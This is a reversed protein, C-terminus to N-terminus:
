NRAGFVRTLKLFVQNNRATGLSTETLFYKDEIALALSGYRYEIAGTADLQSLAPRDPLDTSSYRLALRAHVHNFPSTGAAASAFRTHSDFPAPLFLADGSVDRVAGTTGDQIGVQATLDHRRWAYQATGTVSRAASGGFTGLQLRSASVLLQANLRGSGLPGNASGTVQQTFSWGRQADLNDGYSIAYGLQGIFSGLPRAVSGGASGGYALQVDGGAPELAGVTPGGHLEVYASNAATRRWQLQAGVSQGSTREVDGSVRSEDYSASATTWFRWEPSLPRQFGYSLVQLSRELEVGNGSTFAHGYGYTASHINDGSEARLTSALNNFESRPNFPSDLTPLRTFFNDYLSLTVKPGLSAQSSLQVRHDDYNDGAYTGESATGRYDLNWSYTGAGHSTSARFIDTTRDSPGTFPVTQEHTYHTYGASVQPHVRDWFRVDVGLTRDLLTADGASGTSYDEDQRQAHLGIRLPSTQYSLLAGDLRYSLRDRQEDRSAFQNVERFYTIGGSYDLLGPRYVSGGLDLGLDLNLLPGSRTLGTSTQGDERGYVLGVRGLWEFAAAPAPVAAAALALALGALATRRM